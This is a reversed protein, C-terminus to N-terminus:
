RHDGGGGIGCFNKQQIQTWTTAEWALSLIEGCLVMAVM